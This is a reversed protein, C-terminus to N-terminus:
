DSLTARPPRREAPSTGIFKRALIPRISNRSAKNRSL